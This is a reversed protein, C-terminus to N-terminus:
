LESLSCVAALLVYVREEEANGAEAPQRAAAAFADDYKLCETPNCDAILREYDTRLFEETSVIVDSLKM